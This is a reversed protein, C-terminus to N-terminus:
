LSEGLVPLPIEIIKQTSQSGNQPSLISIQHHLIRVGRRQNPHNYVGEKNELVGQGDL